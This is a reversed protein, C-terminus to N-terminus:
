GGCSRCPCRLAPPPPSTDPPMIEPAAAFPYSPDSLPLAFLPDLPQLPLLDADLFVLRDLHAQLGFAHLKLRGAARRAEEGDPAAAAEEAAAVAVPPVRLVHFHAARLRAIHEGALAEGVLALLPRMTGSHRLCKSLVEAGVVYEPTAVLTVFAERGLGELTTGDGLEPISDTDLRGFSQAQRVADQM